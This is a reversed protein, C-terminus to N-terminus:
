LVYRFLPSKDGMDSFKEKQLEDIGERKCLAIKEKNLRAYNWM